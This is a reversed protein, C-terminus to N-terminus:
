QAGHCYGCFGQGAKGDPRANADTHCVFCNANMEEHWEGKIDRLFGNAHTRPNTGKIGDFDVHCTICNADGGETDHCSMCRQIDRKALTAHSGGGSGVGIRTFGPAEHSTPMVGGLAVSGNMHCDSCFEQTRHCTQCDAAKGKAEIGHTFRFNMSHVAQGALAQAKDNGFKRPSLLGSAVGPALETLNTGDHCEACSQETHCGQCNAEYTRLNMIRSHEKTFNAVMHSAPRLTSLNTHCAECQNTAKVDNHCTNCTAMSPLNEHTAFEAKDMNQHCTECQMGQEAIHQKHSFLIERVPNPLAQMNDDGTHCFNCTENVEQEHCSQCETHTPLMRDSSLVSEEAKHCQACEAGAEAHKAHSFKIIQTKDIQGEEGAIVSGRGFLVLGTVIVIAAAISLNKKM